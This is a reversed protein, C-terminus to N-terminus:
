KKAEYLQEWRGFPTTDQVLWAIMAGAIAGALAGMLSHERRGVAADPAIYWGGVAAGIALCVLVVSALRGWRPAWGEVLRLDDVSLVRSRRELPGRVSIATSDVRFLRGEVQGHTVTDVRVRGDRRKAYRQVEADLLRARDHEDTGLLDM